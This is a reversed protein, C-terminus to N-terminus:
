SSEPAFNVAAAAVTELGEGVVLGQTVEADPWLKIAGGKKPGLSRREIKNGDSDLAIRQIAKPEDTLIDRVLAVICPLRDDGFLCRAEFRLVDDLELIQDVDVGRVRGLYHEALTVRISRAADWIRLASRSNSDADEAPDPSRPRPPPRIILSTEGALWEVAERFGVGEVHMVLAIVDGGKGCHRCHWLQKKVNVGFRDDGDRCAPCPGVYESAAAKKLPRGLLQEAVARLDREAAREIWDGAGSM